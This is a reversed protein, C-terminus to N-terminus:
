QASARFLYFNAQVQVLGFRVALALALALALLLLLLARAPPLFEFDPAIVV